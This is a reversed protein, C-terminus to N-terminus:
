PTTTGPAPAAAVPTAGAPAGTAGPTTGAAGPTTGVAGPTTGTPGPTTGAAGGQAGTPITAAGPTTGAAGGVGVTGPAAPTQPEPATMRRAAERADKGRSRVYRVAGPAPMVFGKAEALRQIRETSDLKALKLRLDANERGIAASKADTRAIQDNLQLLGVNLFVIGALLVGVCVVWLRGRLLRDVFVNGRAALARRVDAGTLPQRPAAKAAPRAERAPGSRRRPAPATRPSRPKAPAAAAARATRPKAATAARAPRPSAQTSGRPKAGARTKRPKAPAAAAARATRPKATRTVRPEVDAPVETRRRRAPRAEVPEARAAAARAM